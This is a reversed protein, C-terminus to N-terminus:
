AVKLTKEEGSRPDVFGFKGDDQTLRENANLLETGFVVRRSSIDILLDDRIRTTESMALRKGCGQVPLTPRPIM